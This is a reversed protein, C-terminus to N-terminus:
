LGDQAQIRSAIEGGVKHRSLESLTVRGRDLQLLERFERLLAEQYWRLHWPEALMGDIMANAENWEGHICARVFQERAGTGPCHASIIEAVVPVVEYVLQM